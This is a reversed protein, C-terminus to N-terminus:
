VPHIEELPYDENSEIVLNKGLIHINSLLRSSIDITSIYEVITKSIAM